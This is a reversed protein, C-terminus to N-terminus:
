SIEVKSYGFLDHGYAKTGVLWVGGILEIMHLLHGMQEATGLVQGLGPM